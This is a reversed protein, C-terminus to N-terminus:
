FRLLARTESEAGASGTAMGSGHRMREPQRRYFFPTGNGPRGDNGRETRGRRENRDTGARKKREAPIKDGTGREAGERAEQATTPANQQGNHGKSTYLM